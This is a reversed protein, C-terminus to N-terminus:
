WHDDDVSINGSMAEQLSAIIYAINDICLKGARKQQDYEPQTM